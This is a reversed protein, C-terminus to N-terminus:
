DRGSSGARRLVPPATPRLALPMPAVERAQVVEGGSYAEIRARVSALASGKVAVAGSGSDAGAPPAAPAGPDGFVFRMESGRLARVQARTGRFHEESQLPVGSAMQLRMGPRVGARDVPGGPTVAVVLGWDAGTGGRLSFGMKETGKLAVTVPEFPGAPLAEPATGPKEAPPPDPPAPAPSEAPKERPERPQPRRPQPQPRPRPRPRLPEEAQAAAPSAPTQASEEEKEPRWRSDNASAAVHGAQHAADHALDAWEDFVRQMAPDPHPCVRRFGVKGSQARRDDAAFRLRLREVALSEVPSVRGAEAPGVDFVITVTEDREDARQLIARFQADGLVAEGNARLVRSGVLVGRQAAPGGPDLATVFGWGFSGGGLEAGIREGPARRLERTSALDEAPLSGPRPQPTHTRLVFDDHARRADSRMDDARLNLINVTETVLASKIRHDLPTDTRFSPSHNVELLWPRLQSDLLLDFGLIEFCCFGDNGRSHPFCSNYEHRLQPQAALLTKVICEDVRRWLVSPDHGNKRLWDNFFTFDRKNGTDGQAADTNFVFLDSQRNIAYNTLHMCTRDINESSPRVYDEVCLRVLGENFIHVSLHRVSTVLAYVRLDFKKDEILLPDDVYEQVVADELEKTDRWPHHTLFIGRGQCGASPKVIYVRGSVTQTRLLNRESKLSWTRPFFHGGDGAMGRDRRYKRIRGLTAALANKRCILHMSPFHNIRQWNRLRMVRQYNVSTDTWWLNFRSVDENDEVWGQEAAVERLLAYKCCSLNVVVCRKSRRQGAVEAPSESLDRRLDARAMASRSRGKAHQPPPNNPASGQRHCGATRPPAGGQPDGFRPSDRTLPTRDATARASKSRERSNERWGRPPVAPGGRQGRRSSAPRPPLSAPEDDEGLEERLAAPDAHVAPHGNEM